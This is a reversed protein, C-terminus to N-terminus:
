AAHLRSCARAAATFPQPSGCGPAAFAAESDHRDSTSHGTTAQTFPITATAQARATRVPQHPHSLRSLASRSFLATAAPRTRDHVPSSPPVGQSWYWPGHVKCTRVRKTRNLVDSPLAPARPTASPPRPAPPPAPGPAPGTQTELMSRVPKVRGPRLAIKYNNKM